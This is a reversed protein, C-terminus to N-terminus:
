NEWQVNGGLKPLFEEVANKIAQWDKDYNIGFKQKRKWVGNKMRWQYILIKNHGFMNALIVACWWKNTKYITKYDIVKVTEHVPLKEESM